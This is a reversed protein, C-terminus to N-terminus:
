EMVRMNKSMEKNATKPVFVDKTEAAGMNLTNRDM